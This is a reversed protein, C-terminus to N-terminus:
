ARSIERLDFPTDIDTLVNASGTEVIRIEPEHKKVIAKLGLTEEDIREVEPFLRRDILVPHGKKGDHGAIVITGGEANYTDIVKNISQTDVMALDGPLVLLARSVPNLENLGAKLSSSQGSEFEQNVILRCSLDALAGRILNAEWGLVVIVENAKSKLAAEVVRRIIPKGQLKELLKNRGLM